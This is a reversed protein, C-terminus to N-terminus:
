MLKRQYANAPVYKVFKYLNNNIRIINIMSSIALKMRIKDLLNPKIIARSFVLFAALNLRWGIWYSPINSPHQETDFLYYCMLTSVLECFGEDQDAGAMFYEFSFTLNTSEPYDDTMSIYTQFMYAHTLEHFLTPLLKNLHINNKIYITENEHYYLGRLDIGQCKCQLIEVQIHFDETEELSVVNPEKIKLMETLILSFLV